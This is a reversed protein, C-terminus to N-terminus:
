SLPGGGILNKGWLESVSYTRLWDKLEARALRRFSSQGDAFDAVIIDEPQFLDVFTTSQTAVLIQAKLSAAQLLGTILELAYPHLGLEPEDLVILGPLNKESQLLLATLAIARVSGDSLQHPGFLYDCGKQRWKLLISNQNLEEPALVFEDFGPVIKRVTSVIRRYVTPATQKYLYLMAALNRADGYLFQNDHIYGTLRVGATVSTDHFHCFRVKDLFSNIIAAGDFEGQERVWGVIRGSVSLNVIKEENAIKAGVPPLNPPNTNVVLSDPQSHELCTEFALSSGSVDLTLSATLRQTTKVGFHLLTNAGGEKGVFLDAKGDLLDRLFRFFSLLNSKGSGNAGIMVNLPQLDITADKISKWGSLHLNKLRTM